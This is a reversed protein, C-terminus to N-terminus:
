DPLFSPSQCTQPLPLCQNLSIYFRQLPSTLPVSISGKQEERCGKSTGHGLGRVVNEFFINPLAWVQCHANGPPSCFPHSRWTLEAKPQQGSCWQFGQYVLLFRLGWVMKKMGNWWEMRGAWAMQTWGNSNPSVLQNLKICQHFHKHPAPTPVHAALLPRASWPWLLLLSLVQANEEGQPRFCNETTGTALTRLM